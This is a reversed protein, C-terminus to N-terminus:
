TAENIEFTASWGESEMLLRYQGSELTGFLSELDLSLEATEGAPLPDQVGCIGYPEAYPVSVWSDTERKWLSFDWLYGTDQETNNHLLVRVATLDEAFVEMSIDLKPATDAGARGQCMSGQEDLWFEAAMDDKVLRYHGAALDGYVTLDCTVTAQELDQLVYAIDSFALPERPPLTYWEGDRELQLSYYESYSMEYGSQNDILVTAIGDTIDQITLYTRLPLNAIAYDGEAPALFRDDCSALLGACPFSLVSLSSDEEEGELAQWYDPFDADVQWLSGDGSLWLGESWAAYLDTGDQASIWLGYCPLSWQSLEHEEAAQAPLANIRELLELERESDYLTRSTVTEGDYYYLILASTEPSATQLLGAAVPEGPEAEKVNPEGATSQAGGCGTLALCLALLLSFMRIHNMM